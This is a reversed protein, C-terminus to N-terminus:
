FIKQIFASFDVFVEEPKLQHFFARRTNEAQLDPLHANTVKCFSPICTSPLM